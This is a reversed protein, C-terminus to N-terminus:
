CCRRLGLRRGACAGSHSGSRTRVTARLDAPLTDFEKAVADLRLELANFYAEGGYGPDAAQATGAEVFTLM